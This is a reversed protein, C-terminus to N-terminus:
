EKLGAEALPSISERMAAPSVGFTKKFVRRFSNQNNYGLKLYLDSIKEQPDRILKEAEQMRMRELSVSFNEGTIKKFLYSFYSESISFEMSIKSLCIAPDTFNQSIYERIRFILQNENSKDTQCARSLELAINHYLKLSPLEEWRADVRTQVAAPVSEESMSFRLKVLTNRIDSLLWNIQLGSLSRKQLNEKEILHFLEDIQEQNGALVFQSLSSSLESPYYYSNRNRELSEYICFFRDNTANRSAEHAQQYSKWAFSLLINSNGLGGFLWISHQQILADHMQTFTEAVKQATQAFCQENSAHILLAYSYEQPRFFCLPEGFFREFHEILLADYNGQAIGVVTTDSDEVEYKELYVSCYLVFFKVTKDEPLMLYRRAYDTEEPSSLTGRMIQRAYSTRLLPEQQKALALLEQKSHESQSLLRSIGVFPISNRKSLLVIFVFGLILAGVVCVTFVAQYSLVSYLVDNSPQVLYYTWGNSKSTSRTLMFHGSTKRLNSIENVTSPAATVESLYAAMQAPSLPVADAGIGFVPSGQPDSVCLFGSNYLNLESFIGHLQAASIELCLDAPIRRLAFRELPMVFLYNYRDPTTETAYPSLSLMQYQNAPDEILAKWDDYAAIDLRRTTLYYQRLKEFHDFSISYGTNRLHVFYRDVPLFMQASLLTALRSKAKSSLLYFEDNETTNLNALFVLESSGSLQLAFSSMSVFDQDLQEVANDLLTQTQRHIGIKIKEISITYLLIGMCLIVLLVISYSAMLRITFRTSQKEYDQGFWDHNEKRM